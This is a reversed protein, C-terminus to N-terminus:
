KIPTKMPIQIHLHILIQIKIQTTGINQYRYKYRHKYRYYHRSHIISPNVSCHVKILIIKTIMLVVKFQIFKGFIKRVAKTIM